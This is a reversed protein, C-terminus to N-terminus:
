SNMLFYMSILGIWGLFIMKRMLAHRWWNQYGEIKCESFPYLPRNASEGTHTPIDWLVHTTYGIFFGWVTYSQFASAALYLILLFVFSHLFYYIKREWEPHHAEPGEKKMHHWFHWDKKWIRYLYYPLQAVDPTVSGVICAAKALPEEVFTSAVLGTALHTGLDM